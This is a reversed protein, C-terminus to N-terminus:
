REWWREGLCPRLQKQIKFWTSATIEGAHVPIQTVCTGCRITLHSGKQRVEVCGHRRLM